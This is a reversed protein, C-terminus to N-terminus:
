LVAQQALIFDGATWTSLWAQRMGIGVAPCSTSAPLDRPPTLRPPAPRPPPSPTTRAVLRNGPRLSQRLTISCSLWHGERAEVVAQGGAEFGGRGPRVAGWWGKGAPQDSVNLAHIPKTVNFKDMTSMIISPTTLFFLVVFLSFNIGLWQLWWRVGQISLNKRCLCCWGLSLSLRESM